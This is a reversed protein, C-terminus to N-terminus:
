ARTARTKTGYAQIRRGSQRKSPISGGSSSATSNARITRHDGGPRSSGGSGAPRTLRQDNQDGQDPRTPPVLGLRGPREPRGPRRSDPRTRTEKTRNRDGQDSTDASVPPTRGPENETAMSEPRRGECRGSRKQDGQDDPGDLGNAVRRGGSPLDLGSSVGAAHSTLTSCRARSRAPRAMIGLLQSCHWVSSGRSVQDPDTAKKDQMTNRWRKPRGAVGASCARVPTKHKGPRRSGPRGQNPSSSPKTELDRRPAGTAAPATARSVGHQPRGVFRPLDLTRTRPWHDRRAAGRAGRERDRSRYGM